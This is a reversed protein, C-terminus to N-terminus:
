GENRITENVSLSFSATGSNGNPLPSSIRTRVGKNKEPIYCLSVFFDICFISFLNNKITFYYFYSIFILSFFLFLYFLSQCLHFFIIYDGALLLPAAPLIGHRKKTHAGPPARKELTCTGLRGPLPFSMASPLPTWRSTSDSPFRIRSGVLGRAFRQDSSCFDCLLSYM